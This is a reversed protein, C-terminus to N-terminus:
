ETGDPVSYAQLFQILRGNQQSKLSRSKGGYSCDCSCRVCTDINDLEDSIKKFKTYYGAVDSTGQVLDSLEKQLQYLLAGNSQGFRDELEEWIEKATKSYLVSEAIETSLSNLFWSIVMDNCRNWAKFSPSVPALESITGDIFELKNKASLAILVARRWGGYSKGDFISNVLIMGPSDSPHLYFPHSSDNTLTPQLSQISSPSAAELVTESEDTVAMSPFKLFKFFFYYSRSRLARQKDPTVNTSSKSAESKIKKLNFSRDPNM